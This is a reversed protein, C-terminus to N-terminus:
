IRHIVYGNQKFALLPLRLKLLSQSPIQYRVNLHVLWWKKNFKAQEDVCPAYSAAIRSQREHLIQWMFIFWIKSRFFFSFIPTKSWFLLLFFLKNTDMELQWGLATICQVLTKVAVTMTQIHFFTQVQCSFRQLTKCFSASPPYVLRFELFFVSCFFCVAASLPSRLRIFSTTQNLQHKHLHRGSTPSFRIERVM